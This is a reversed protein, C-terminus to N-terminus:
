LSASTAVGALDDASTKGAVDDDDRAVSRRLTLTGLSSPLRDSVDDDPMTEM